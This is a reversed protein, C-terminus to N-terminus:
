ESQLVIARAFKPNNKGRNDNYPEQKNTSNTEVIYKM